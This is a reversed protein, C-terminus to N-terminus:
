NSTATREMMSPPCVLSLSLRPGIPPTVMVGGARWLGLCHRTSGLLFFLGTTMTACAHPGPALRTSSAASHRRTITLLACGRHVQQTVPRYVMTVVMDMPRALILYKRKKEEKTKACDPSTEDIYERLLDSFVLCTYGCRDM